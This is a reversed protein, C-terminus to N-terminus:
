LDVAWLEAFAQQYDREAEMARSVTDYYLGMEVIYDLLSIKGTDLAKKLLDANDSTTLLKRYGEATTKLGVARDYLLQLGSYLQQRTDAERMEAARTSAKAQRIRNKNEWLPVSVGLSVGQFREGGVKESVYGASFTPLGTARSLAVQQKSALIEEHAYALQPNKEAVGDFWAAFDQPLIVEPYRSEDFVIEIGGNLRKLRVLLANREVEVRSIEGQVAALNLKVKNYELQNTDGAKLRAEYGEAITTAHRLRRALELLLANNYILEICCTKAELLINMRDTKYRWDLLKDQMKAARSKMGTITPIDFSQTISFDTRNGIEAPNGWLYGVEVEPNSLFIGTRNNLKEAETSERLAKLTTNNEEIARLVDSMGKQAWLPTTALIALISIFIAKM